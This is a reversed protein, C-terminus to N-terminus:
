WEEKVRNGMNAESQATCYAMFIEDDSAHEAIDLQHLRNGVCEISLTGYRLTVQDVETWPIFRKRATVPLMIGNDDVHVFLAQTSAREWFIAFTIAASLVGFIGLPFKWQQILSLIAVSLAIVLEAIRVVANTKGNTLWKNKFMTFGLLLLGAVLLALGWMPISYNYTFIIAGTGMFAMACLLHLATVQQPKVKEGIVPLDYVM